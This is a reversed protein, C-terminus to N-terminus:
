TCFIESLKNTWDQRFLLLSQKLPVWPLKYKINTWTVGLCSKTKCSTCSHVVANAYVITCRHKEPFFFIFRLLGLLVQFGSKITMKLSTKMVHSSEM